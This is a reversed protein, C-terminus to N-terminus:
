RGISDHSYYNNVHPQTIIQARAHSTWNFKKIM